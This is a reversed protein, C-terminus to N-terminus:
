VMVELYDFIKWSKKRMKSFDEARSTEQALFFSLSLFFSLLCSLLFSVLTLSTKKWWIKQRFFLPKNTRWEQMNLYGTWQEIGSCPRYRLCHLNLFRNLQHLTYLSLQSMSQVTHSHIRHMNNRWTWRHHFWWGSHFQRRWDLNDLPLSHFQCRDLWSQSAVLHRGVEGQSRLIWGREVQHSRDRYWQSRWPEFWRRHVDGWGKHHFHHGVCYTFISSEEHTHIKTQIFKWTYSNEDTQIHISSEELTSDM